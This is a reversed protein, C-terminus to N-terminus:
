HHRVHVARFAQDLLAQQHLAVAGVADVQGVRGAVQQGVVDACPHRGHTRCELRLGLDAKMAVM